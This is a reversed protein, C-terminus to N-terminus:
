PSLLLQNAVNAKQSSFSYPWLSARTMFPPRLFHISSPRGTTVSIGVTAGAHILVAFDALAQRGDDGLERAVRDPPVTLGLLACRRRLDFPIPALRLEVRGTM